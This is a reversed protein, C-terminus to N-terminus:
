RAKVVYQGNLLPQDVVHAVSHSPYIETLYVQADRRILRTDFRQYEGTVPQYDLQYLELSDGSRLGNNSGSHIVIQQRGPRSDVSALYPQCNVVAAVEDSAAAVLQQVQQGYDTHWFRPSGFGLSAQADPKWKGFTQYQKSFILEGTFGDRVRLTFSFIRSRKDLRTNVHLFDHAGSIFRTYYSPAEVSNPFSLSMDDVEGSVFFQVRNQRALAIAQAATALEGRANPTTFTNQLYVPALMAHRNYLNAGLLMPLHQEVQQLAGLKSSSTNVRPFSAFVLSKKYHNSFPEACLSLSPNFVSGLSVPQNNGAGNQGDAAGWSTSAVGGLTNSQSGNPSGAQTNSGLAQTNGGVTQTNGGLVQTNPLGGNLGPVRDLDTMKSVETLLFNLDTELKALRDISPKAEHWEEAYQKIAEDNLKVTEGRSNTHKAQSHFFSSCGLLGFLASGLLLSLPLIKGILRYFHRQMKQQLM